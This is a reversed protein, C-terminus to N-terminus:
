DPSLVPAHPITEAYLLDGFAGLAYLVKGFPKLHKPRTENDVPPVSKVYAIIGALDYDSLYYFDNSPMIFVSTGDNKVGHRIARVWDEDTMVGGVGGKGSTLNMSDVYGIQPDDFFPGGSLDPGHCQECHMEAWHKGVALDGEAIPVSLTEPTIDYKKNMRSTTSFIMVGIAIVLLAILSGLVIGIWKLVKKM